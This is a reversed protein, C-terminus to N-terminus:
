YAWLSYFISKLTEASSDAFGAKLGGGVIAHALIPFDEPFVGRFTQEARYMHLTSTVLVVSRCHLAEVLPLSQTANGYTTTARRELIIDEERLGGYFGAQPLIERWSAKPNVGSVILKKVAGRYLLDVGEKVRGPGGTLVVACDAQVDQLWSTPLTSTVVAYEIKFRFIILFLLLAANILALRRWM